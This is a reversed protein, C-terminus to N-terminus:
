VWFNCGVSDVIKNGQHFFPEIVVQGEVANNVTKHNLATAGVTVTHAARAVADFPFKILVPKLVIQFMLWTDNGHGAGHMRVRGAALEEDHMM